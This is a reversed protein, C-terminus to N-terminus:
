RKPLLLDASGDLKIEDVHGSMKGDATRVHMHTNSGHQTFIGQHKESYFGIIEVPKNEIPFTIRTVANNQPYGNNAVIHFKVLAPTCHIRFPFPLATDVNQKEATQAILTELEALTQVTPPIPTTSWQSVQSYVLFPAGHNWTAAISIKKDSVTSISPTSDFISIEGKMGELPGVAYLHPLKQLSELQIHASLDGEHARKMEGVWKVVGNNADADDKECTSDHPGCGTLALLVVLLLHRCRM